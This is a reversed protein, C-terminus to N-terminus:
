HNIIGKDSFGADWPFYEGKLRKGWRSIDEEVMIKVLEDFKVKPKWKLKKEAKSYDGKLYEVDHPRLNDKSSFVKNRSVGVIKCAKEVFENVSHTENTALM